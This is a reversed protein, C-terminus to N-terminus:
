IEFDSYAEDIEDQEIGIYRLTISPSSHNFLKQLMAVDKNKRYFWYGFTKRLTHTGIEELGIKEAVDNLLRYAQVRTIPKNLGKRSTFLYDSMKMNKTYELFERALTDNIKFRKRKSTKQEIICIHSKVTRDDNLIDSVKLKIIDSIRLGTNIGTVFLLYDRTGKKRLEIKMENIKAKDRIPQVIKM